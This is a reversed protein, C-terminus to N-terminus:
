IAPEYGTEELLPGIMEQLRQKQESTLARRGKGISGTFVPKMVNAHHRHFPVDGMSATHETAEIMAPDFEIDLFQCTTRLVDAPRQVLDEYRLELTIEPHARAFRRVLRVTWQWRRAASEVDPQLGVQVFSHAVDLGDRLLHIFQANPFVRFIRPVHFTNTTSKEGWREFTQGMRDGYYRYFSDIILALSRKEKPIDVLRNALDRLPINLAYAGQRYAYRALILHVMERWNLVHAYKRFLNIAQGLVYSEPCIHIRPSVQLMRRLLTTGCRGSGVIFFPRFPENRHFPWQAPAVTSKWTRLRFYLAYLWEPRKEPM